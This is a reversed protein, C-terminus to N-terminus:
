EALTKRVIDRRRKLDEIEEQVEDPSKMIARNAARTRVREEAIRKEEQLKRIKDDYYEMQFITMQRQQTSQIKLQKQQSESLEKLDKANAFNNEVYLISGGIVAITSFIAAISSSNNKIIEHITAM